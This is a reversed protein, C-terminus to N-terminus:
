GVMMNGAESKVVRNSAKATEALGTTIRLEGMVNGIELRTLVVLM